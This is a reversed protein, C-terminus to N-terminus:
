APAQMLIAAAGLALAAIAVCLLAFVQNIRMSVAYISFGSYRSTMLATMSFPTACTAIAWGVLISALHPLPPLHLVSPPLSSAVLVASLVPHVAAFALGIITLMLTLCALVPAHALAGGVMATWSTPIASAIITGGCGAAMFLAVEGALTPLAALDARLRRAAQALRRRGQIQSWHLALAAFPIVMVIAAAVAIDFARAVGLVLALFAAMSGGMPALARWLPREPRAFAPAAARGRLRWLDLTVGVLVAGAALGLTLPVITFWSLGPYLAILITLNSVMPSWLTAAAFSRTIAAFMALRDEELAVEGRSAMQLLLNVGAMGLLGGFLQSAVSFWAYRSRVSSSLLYQAVVQTHPSDLSARGLLSVASVLSVMLGGIGIGRALSALPAASFPLLALSVALVVGVVRRIGPPIRRQELVLFLAGALGQVWVMGSHPWFQSALMALAVLVLCSPGPWAPLRARAIAQSM